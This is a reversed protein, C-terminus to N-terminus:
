GGGAFVHITSGVLVADPDIQMTPGGGGTTLDWANWPYGDQNGNDYEMLHDAGSRVYVHILGDVPDYFASPAGLIPGGDSAGQSLGWANWPHGDVNGNVYEQLSGDAGRVYVHILHDSPDLFADPTGAVPGGGSAGFSLGWANWPYGGVNGNDYETLEGDTALVYVHILGDQSDLFASPTGTVPGGGSAGASLIWCNWPHGGVNGDDYEVLYGDVARVYVHILGDRADYFASPGGAVPSGSSAGFSLNYMNWPHGNANDNVYEVLDGGASQVYVHILGDHPDYFADPVGGVPQGGGAGVSLDYFSWPQPAHADDNVYEVLDGNSAWIYVHVLGRSDQVVSPTGLIGPGNTGYTQDYTNWVRGNAHDDVTEQLDPDAPQTGGEAAPVSNQAQAWTYDLQPSGSTDVLLEAWSPYGQYGTGVYGTGMDCPQCALNLLVNDRHGWCGSQNSPTCDINGSNMGDDYMWFYMAELSNGVAGAWNSGWTSWPFGSPPTPDQSQAAGQAAAQDLATAMGALPPYGRATRELNTAVFLQEQATLSYWNGPLVMGGLGEQARANAIAQLTANTCGASNDYTGGQCSQLFDPNPPINNPPNNPGSPGGKTAPPPVHHRAKAMTHGDPGTSVAPGLVLAAIVLLGLGFRARRSFGLTATDAGAGPRLRLWLSVM